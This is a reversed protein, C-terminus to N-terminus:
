NSITYKRGTKEEFFYNFGIKKEEKNEIRQSNLFDQLPEAPKKGPTNVITLTSKEGGRCGSLTSNVVT